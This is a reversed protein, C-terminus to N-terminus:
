QISQLDIKVLEVDGTAGMLEGCIVVVGLIGPIEKAAGLAKAIGAKGEAM